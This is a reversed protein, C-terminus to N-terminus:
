SRLARYTLVWAAAGAASAALLARPSSPRNGSIRDIATKTVFGRM